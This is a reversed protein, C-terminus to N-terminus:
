RDLDHYIGEIADLHRDLTAPNTWYRSFAAYGLERAIEHDMELMKEVLNARRGPRCHLGNLGNTVLDKGAGVESVIPPIGWAQATQIAWGDADLGAGVSVLAKASALYPDPPRWGTIIADRNAARVEDAAPGDGIFTLPFGLEWAAEALIVSGRYRSIEGLAVWTEGLEAPAIRDAEIVTPVVSQPIELPISPALVAQAALSPFIVHHLKPHLTQNAALFRTRRLLRDPLPTAMCNTRWCPVSLGVHPCPKAHDALFYQGTPCGLDFQPDSFVIPIERDIAPKLIAPTLVERCQHAHVVVDDTLGSLLADFRREADRNWLAQTFNKPGGFVHVELGHLRPDPTGTGAVVLVRHGREALGVATVIPLNATGPTASAFDHVIVITM